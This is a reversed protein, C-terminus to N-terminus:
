HSLFDGAQLDDVTAFTREVLADQLAQGRENVAVTAVSGFAAMTAVGLLTDRVDDECQEASYGEVGEKVLADHYTAILSPTIERRVEDTMSWGIFYAVDFAGLQKASLQYDIFYVEGADDFMVNDLRLDYHALTLPGREFWRDQLMNITTKLGEAVHMSYSSIRDGYREVFAPFFHNYQGQAAKYKENNVMPLWTLKDLRRNAWFKAHQRAAARMVDHADNANCGHLQDVMRHHGLDELVLVFPATTPAMDAFHCRPVNGLQDAAERYFSVEREYFGFMQAMEIVEPISSALKVIVTSPGIGSTYTLHVRGLQALLGVGEAIREAHATAVHGGLDCHANLWLPTIDDIDVPIGYM